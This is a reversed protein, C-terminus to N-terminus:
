KKAGELSNKNGQLKNFKELYFLMEAYQLNSYKLVEKYVELEKIQAELMEIQKEYEDKLNDIESHLKKYSQKINQETQQKQQSIVPECTVFACYASANTSIVVLAVIGILIKTKLLNALLM